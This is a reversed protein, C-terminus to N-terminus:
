RVGARKRRKGNVAGELLEEAQARTVDSVRQGGIMEALEEIREVGNVVRVSTETEGGKVIKRVTLHRDAYCAIQPLHTICLVQHHAALERLKLGIVSGLRGGVNADIEDFVLVSTGDTQALIGKLALMVRSLEGGSAIKRLPQAGQGPNTQAVFEVVDVGCPSVEASQEISVSFIAKEMGLEGLEKEVLPVLKKGAARRAGSLKEGVKKMTGALPELRKKLVELDESEKSLEEIKKGIEERYVLAEETSQGYKNLVRNLVNLREDVEALEGPDLELRDLYRSLDFATEELQITAERMAQSIPGVQQDVITLESLVAAMMKLRELVSGDMEYLAGHVAGAEKKLKELNRLVSSRAGLEEFEGLAIEAKDIEDAQFRYLELQQQRLTRSAALEEVRRKAEAHALYAARFEERLAGLGGFHDLVELQNSPKLLFQHDHQGHVDVLHEAIQKLMGLTIPNGNLSISSRGSAHLRRTLLVEGGDGGISIDGAEEIRQRVGASVEFIGSVRGEDAGGRLMEAPSRLGLLLEVAGIILSKGAGTAGTFCNLGSGLEIRADSIVALNSIHLERLM